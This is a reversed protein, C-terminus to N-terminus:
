NVFQVECEIKIKTKEFVLDIIEKSFNKIKESTANGFNIIVLAQNKYVGVNEKRYGKLNCVSDLIWALPIKVSDNDVNYSPILPYIKLLEAYQARSIVPNKFFSGATGYVDLNPLKETRIDIVANRVQILTPNNVGKKEFYNKLDKYSINIEGSSKLIFEVYLIIYKKGINKKFFSDRYNFECENNLFIKTELTESNITTVKTIVNKVEVGYAGINQVPAAGVTGPILSLNELGHLNKSVTEGVLTDWNEGAGVSVYVDGNDKYEYSIGKIENKIVIGKIGEDSIVVNSGGGLVFFPINKEQSFKLASICDEISLVTCFFQANGGIKFTSYEKLSINELIKM